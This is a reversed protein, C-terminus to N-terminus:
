DHSYQHVSGTRQTKKTMEGIADYTYTEVFASSTGPNGLGSGNTTTNPYQVQALLDNSNISSTSTTVGYVYGTTQFVNNTGNNNVWAKMTLVHDSGDYWCSGILGSMWM